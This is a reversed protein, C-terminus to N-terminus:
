SLTYDLFSALSSVWPPYIHALHFLWCPHRANIYVWCSNQFLSQNLFVLFCTLCQRQSPITSCNVPLAAIFSACRLTAKIIKRSVAIPLRKMAMCCLILFCKMQLTQYAMNINYHMSFTSFIMDILLFHCSLLSHLMGEIGNNIPRVPDITDQFYYRYYTFKHPNPKSLGVHLQTLAAIVNPAFCKM